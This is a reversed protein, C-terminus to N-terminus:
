PAPAINKNMRFLNEQDWTAKVAALRDYNKRYAAHIREQGEDETQFNIYTGGTSFRRMDQWAARAWATNAADDEARDWSGTINLVIAADRNGMPSSDEPMRNIAGDVPFLAVASYPSPMRWAHELTKALLDPELGPLYESKWYYRRGKPQTADLISQQSVYTRRQVIDGVPSGFGKIAAVQREAEDLPGTHCVVLAVIPRGHIEKPLWPAPPAMRVIAAVTLEPPAQKTLTRYMELVQPADEGRWAIVGGSIEPGVPHLGYELNTVVGFNGGGGRLGWFLDPNERESAHVPKGGATVM